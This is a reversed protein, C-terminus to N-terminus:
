IEPDRAGYPTDATVSCSRRDGPHTVRKRRREVPRPPDGGSGDDLLSRGAVTSVTVSGWGPRRRPSGTTLGAEPFSLGGVTGRDVSSMMFFEVVRIAPIAAAVRPKPRM